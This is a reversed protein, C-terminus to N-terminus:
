VAAPAAALTSAVVPPTAWFALPVAVVAGLTAFVFVSEGSWSAAQSGGPSFEVSSFLGLAATAAVIALSTAFIRLARTPIRETVFVVCGTVLAIPIAAPLSFVAMPIFAVILASLSANVVGLAGPELFARGDAIADAVAWAGQAFMCTALAAIFLRLFGSSPPRGDETAKTM